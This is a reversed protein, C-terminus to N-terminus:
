PARAGPTPRSGRALAASLFSRARAIMWGALAVAIVAVVLAALWYRDHPVWQDGVLLVIGTLLSLAGLLALVSGTAVFATGRAVGRVIGIAELRALALERRVLVVGSSALERILSVLSRGEWDTRSAHAPQAGRTPHEASAATREVPHAPAIRETSARGASRGTGAGSGGARGTGAQLEANLEGAALLVFSSYYMWTLLVMIAGVAGYAPNLTHFKQVYLRFLLTAALWLVTAVISGVLLWLLLVLAAIAIPFQVITWIMVAAHGFGLRDGLWQVIGEGNLLVVTAVLLVAGAVALSALQLLYRKWWPRTETVDYAANLSERFSGFIASGSWAATLLGFSLLAPAGKAFVVAAITKGVLGAVDGPLASALRTDFWYMVQNKDAVLSLMAAFFLVIPFLSFFFNYAMQAAYVAVKDKGIESWTKKLLAGVDYGKIRM